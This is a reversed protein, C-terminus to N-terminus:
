SLSDQKGTDSELSVLHVIVYEWKFKFAGRMVNQKGDKQEWKRVRRWTWFQGKQCLLALSFKSELELKENEKKTEKPFWKVEAGRSGTESGVQLCLCFWIKWETNAQHMWIPHQHLFYFLQLITGIIIM